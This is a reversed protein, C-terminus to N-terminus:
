CLLWQSAKTLINITKLVEIKGLNREYDDAEESRNLNFWLWELYTEIWGIYISKVSYNISRGTSEYGSYVAKLRDICINNQHIGSWDLATTAINYIGITPGASDWDLLILKGDKSRLFNKADTDRHSLVFKDYVSEKNKLCLEELAKISLVIESTLLVHDKWDHPTYPFIPSKIENGDTLRHINGILKGIDYLDEITIDEVKLPSGEVWEHVRFLTESKGLIIKALATNNKPHPIPIPALIGQDIAQQEIKFAEEINPIFHEKSANAVM